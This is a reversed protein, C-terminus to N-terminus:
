PEPILVKKALLENEYGIFSVELNYARGVKLERTTITENYELREGENVSVIRADQQFTRDTSWKSVVAGTGVDRLAIELIQYTPFKLTVRQKSANRVTLKVAIERVEGLKLPDPSAKVELDLGRANARHKAKGADAQATADGAHHRHFLSCASLSALLCLGFACRVASSFRRPKTM